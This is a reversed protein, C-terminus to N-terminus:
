RGNAASAGPNVTIDYDYPTFLSGDCALARIRYQGPATFTVKTASKAQAGSPSNTVEPDFQPKAPGRYFIWRVQIGLPRGGRGRGGPKSTPLGDDTINVALTAPSALTVTQPGTGTVVPPKNDDVHEETEWIGISRDTVANKTILPNDVEWEPQLWGKAQDTRGNTTLTWVVRKDVPWDKPVNVKFVFWRRGTYFHTPQGQDGSSVNDFNNAPGIPVDLEEESNRNFYGFYLSFSGDPNSQWGEYTPSVDQGKAFKAGPFQFQGQFAFLGVGSLLIAACAGFRFGLFRLRHQTM